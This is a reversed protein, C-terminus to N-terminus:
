HKIIKKSVIHGNGHIFRILYIGAPYNKIDLSTSNVNADVKKSMVLRGTVDYVQIM